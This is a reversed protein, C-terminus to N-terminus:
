KKKKGFKPRSVSGGSNNKTWNTPTYGLYGAVEDMNASQPMITRGYFWQWMTSPNVKTHKSIDQFARWSCEGYVDEVMTKLKWLKPDKNDIFKVFHFAKQLTQIRNRIENLKKGISKPLAASRAM